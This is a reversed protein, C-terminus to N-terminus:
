IYEFIIKIEGLLQVPMEIKNIEYGEKHFLVADFIETEIETKTEGTAIVGDLEKIYSSYGTNTKEIIATLIM